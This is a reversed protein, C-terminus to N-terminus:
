KAYSPSYEKDTASHGAGHCTITCSNTATGNAHAFANQTNTTVSTLCNPVNRNFNINHFQESGHSDHCLYCEALEGNMHTDHFQFRSSVGNAWYSLDQHCKGCVDSSNALNNNNHASKFNVAATGPTKQDLLHLNQSGHPGRGQGATGSLPNSHCSTCYMRSNSNWGTVFTATNINPNKGVAMVSHFSNNNPNYEQAMDRSDAIQGNTGGTTLKKTGDAVVATGDWGGPLYTPLTTYSSHCKYCVQYEQTVSPLWTFGTPAGAGAYTPEVGDAGIMTPFLTPATATGAKAAHPNHCDVCEVHRNAGGFASGASEGVTHARYKAAVDHKYFNTTTNTYASFALHVKVAPGAAGHCSLCFGEEENTVDTGTGTGTYDYPGLMVRKNSGHGNDHCNMCSTTAKHSSANWMAADVVPVTVNDSFPTMDGNAGNADHCKACFSEASSKDLPNYSIVNLFGLDPDLLKITGRMHDGMYHCKICDAVNPIVGAVHHSTRKFDGGTGLGNSSNDVIQRRGGVPGVGPKDTIANHCSLCDTSAYFGNNHPHCNVCKQTAPLHRADATGGSTNTYHETNTHCVECIGNYTGTADGYNNASANSGFVVTKTGSNPTVISNRVMMINSKDPSHTYHCTNCSFGAHQKTVTPGKEVHCSACLTNNNTARLLNGDTSAAYHTQHCSSCEVKGGVYALPATATALLGPDAPNYTVGVPHSGKNLTPNSVYTGVNRASHCDKCIADGTNSARLYSPYVLPNHQNHCTSCVIKGGPIRAAMDANAPANTEYTANVANVDWSHSNGSVGPVAKMANSFPNGGAAGNTVHCSMCLNANGTVSTLTAGPSTHNIHCESCNNHPTIIGVALVSATSTACVNAATVSINGDQGINGSTVTIGSTGAGATILWGTPVSWNYSTAGSVAAVGYTLGTTGASVSTTGSIAGPAAITTSAVVMSIVNSTATTPTACALNSTLVCSVQDGNVLSTSAYNPSNTGVNGGNLLWQYAPTTGGNTPTATFTVSSGACVTGTPNAVISVAPTTPTITGTVVFNRASLTRTTSNTAGYLRIVITQNAPVLLSLPGSSYPTPTQAAVSISAGLQVETGGNVAYKIVFCRTPSSTAHEFAISTITLPNCTTASVTFEYYDTAQGVCGTTSGNFGAQTVGLATTYAPTGTLGAGSTQSTATINGSVAVTANATLAWTATATQAYTSNQALFMIGVVAMIVLRM